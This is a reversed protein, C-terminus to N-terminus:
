SLAFHWFGGLNIAREGGDAGLEFEQLLAAYQGTGLELGNHCLQRALITRWRLIYVRFECRSTLLKIRTPYCLLRLIGIISRM